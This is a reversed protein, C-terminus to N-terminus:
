RYRLVTFSVPDFYPLSLLVSYRKSEADHLATPTEGEIAGNGTRQTACKRMEWTQRDYESYDTIKEKTINSNHM